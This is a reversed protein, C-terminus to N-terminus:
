DATDDGDVDGDIESERRELEAEWEQLRRERAAASEGSPSSASTSARWDDRDEVGRPRRPEFGREQQWSRNPSARTTGAHFGAGIPRGVALWAVSGVPGLFIVIFVWPMKPLNRMLIEDTQIVDLVAYIWVCFAILGLLSPLALRFM